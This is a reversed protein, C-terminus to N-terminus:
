DEGPLMVTLVAEGQDGASVVAKLVIEQAHIEGSPICALRFAVTNESPRYRAMHRCACSLMFVVDWRRGSVDQYTREQKNNWAICAAYVAATVAVPYAIGAARADKSCDILVGDALAEQRSYTSIITFDPTTQAAMKFLFYVHYSETFRDVLICNRKTNTVLFCCIDDM